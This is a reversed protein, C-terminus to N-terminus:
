KNWMGKNNCCKNQGAQDKRRSILKSPKNKTILIPFHNWISMYNLFHELLNFSIENVKWLSGHEMTQVHVRAPSYKWWCVNKGYFYWFNKTGSFAKNFQPYCKEANENFYAVIQSILDCTLLIDKTPSINFSKFIYEYKRSLM